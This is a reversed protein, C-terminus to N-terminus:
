ASGKREAVGNLAAVAGPILDSARLARILNSGHLEGWQVYEDTIVANGYIRTSSGGEHWALATARENYPHGLEHGNAAFWLYLNPSRHEVPQHVIANVLVVPEIDIDVPRAHEGAVRRALLAHSGNFEEIRVGTGIAPILVAFEDPM